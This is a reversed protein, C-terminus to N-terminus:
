FAEETADRESDMVANPYLDKYELHEICRDMLTKNDAVNKVKVPELRNVYKCMLCLFVNAALLGFAEAQLSSGLGWGPGKGEVLVAETKPNAIVWGYTMNHGKVSGDSVICVGDAVDHQYLVDM